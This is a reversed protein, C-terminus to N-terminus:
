LHYVIVPFRLNAQLFMVRSGTSVLTEPQIILVGSGELLQLFIVRSGTSVETELVGELLQLLIM